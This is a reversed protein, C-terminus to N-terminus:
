SVWALRLCHQGPHSLRVIEELASLEIPLLEYNWEAISATQNARNAKTAEGVFQNPLPAIKSAIAQPGNQGM